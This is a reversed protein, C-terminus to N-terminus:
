VEYWKCDKQKIGVMAFLFFIASGLANKTKYSTFDWESRCIPNQHFYTFWLKERVVLHPLCRPEFSTM